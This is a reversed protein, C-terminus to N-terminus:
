HPPPPPTKKPSTPSSTASAAAAASEADLQDNTIMGKQPITFWEVVEVVHEKKGERFVLTSTIRRTSAELILKLDPYVLSMAISAIASTMGGPGAAGPDTPSAGSAGPAPAGGLLGAAAAAAGGNADALAKAADAPTSAGGLPSAGSSQSLLGLAGGLAGAGGPGGPSGAGGLNLGAALNLDGFKAEPFVPVEVRWTCRMNPTEDGECCPGSGSEDSAAFGDRYLHEEVETMKCRLLGTAVSLNRAHSATAFAGAQASLIATLGLGLIAVAVLVELLTFGRERRM